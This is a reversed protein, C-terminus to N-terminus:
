VTNPNPNPNYHSKLVSHIKKYIYFQDSINRRIIEEHHQKIIDENNNHHVGELM